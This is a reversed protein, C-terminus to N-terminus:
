MGIGLGRKRDFDWSVGSARVVGSIQRGLREDMVPRWPVLTFEHANEILAYKGSALQTTGTFVGTIREGENGRPFARTDPRGLIKRRARDEQRELRAVLDKPARIGGEPTRWAHGQEVLADKRREM